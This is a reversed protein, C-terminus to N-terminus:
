VGLLDLQSATEASEGHPAFTVGHRITSATKFQNLARRSTYKRKSRGLYCFDLGQEFWREVTRVSVRFLKAVDDSTMPDEITLDISM